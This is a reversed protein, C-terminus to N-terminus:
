YTERRHYSHMKRLNGRQQEDFLIYVACIYCLIVYLVVPQGYQFFIYLSTSWFFTRVYWVLSSGKHIYLSNQLDLLSRIVFTFHLSIITSNDATVGSKLKQKMRSLPPTWREYSPFACLKSILNRGRKKIIYCSKIQILPLTREM